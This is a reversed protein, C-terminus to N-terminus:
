QPPRGARRGGRRCRRCRRPCATCRSRCTWARTWAAPQWGWTRSSSKYELKDPSFVMAKQLTSCFSSYEPYSCNSGLWYKERGDAQIIIFQQAPLIATNRGRSLTIKDIRGYPFYDNDIRIGASSVKIHSPCIAKRKRFSVIRVPADIIFAAAVVGLELSSTDSLAHDLLFMLICVAAAMAYFFLTRRLSSAEKAFLREHDLTFETGVSLQDESLDSNVAEAAEIKADINMQETSRVRIQNDLRNAVWSDFGRLRRRKLLDGERYYLRCKWIDVSTLRFSLQIKKVEIHDFAELPIRTVKGLGYVRIEDGYIRVRGRFLFGIGMCIIMCFFMEVWPNFSDLRLLYCIDALLVGIIDVSLALGLFYSSLYLIYGGFVAFLLCIKLRGKFQEPDNREKELLHTMNEIEEGKEYDPLARDALKTKKM